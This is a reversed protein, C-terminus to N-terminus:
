KHKLVPKYTYCEDHMRGFWIVHSTGGCYDCTKYPEKPTQWKNGYKAIVRKSRSLADGEVLHDPNVCNKTLCTHQTENNEIDLGKEKGAVRHVTIMKPIGHDGRIMGYGANNVPGTWLWCKSQDKPIHVRKMMRDYASTTKSKKRPKRTKTFM